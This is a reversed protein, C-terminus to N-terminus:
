KRTSLFSDPLSAVKEDLQRYTNRVAAVIELPLDSFDREKRPPLEVPFGVFNGLLDLNEWLSEYKLALLDVDRLSCWADIQEGLRLVDRHILEGYSGNAHM